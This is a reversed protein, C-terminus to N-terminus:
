AGGGTSGSFLAFSVGATASATAGLSDTVVCRVTALGGSGDTTSSTSATITTNAATPSNITIGTLGSSSVLSWAYTFPSVGGSPIAFASGSMPNTPSTVDHPNITLSLASAFTAITRWAGNVYAEAYQLRQWAGNVYAEASTITRWTGGTFAEM